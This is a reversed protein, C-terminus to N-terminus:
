EGGGLGPRTSQREEVKGCPCLLWLTSVTGTVFGRLHTLNNFWPDGLSLGYLDGLAMSFAVTAVLLLCFLFNRKM